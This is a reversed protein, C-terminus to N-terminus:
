VARLDLALAIWAAGYLILEISVSLGIVWLGSVPWQALVLIGLIVTVAGNLM